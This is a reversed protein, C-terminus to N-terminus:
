NGYISREFENVLEEFVKMADEVPKPSTMDVGAIKLEDVPYMSGGTSLFKKYDEVAKEGEELISSSIAVAASFGTAYQYVYFATYFHPIRAWEYQIMDDHSMAPGFYKFNIEDYTKCLWDPTLTGGAEVYRHTELEYEAFMTQRFVTARFSELFRNILYLRMGKDTETNLLHRLLLNENVTSAVEAVFITYDGYVPPQAKKSYYSHMSHGMEHVLTQVYDLRGDYNLLIYPESDYCGSSYAGSRKGKNEYVDIWGNEVGRKVNEIYDDGLPKLAEYMLSVAEEYAYEKGPTEVIPVYVDYMKLEDLELLKKKLEIYRHLVPLNDNVTKILNDYVSEPIDNPYLMSERASSFGRIRSSIVNAKVNSDYLSAITNVHNKFATYMANFAAERVSRDKSEMMSSYNGHTLKVPNGDEDKIEGFDIDANELVAFTRGASRTVESLQAMLSEESASLVHKKMKLINELSFEYLALREDEKIFGRLKEPDESLFEPTMFSTAASVQSIVTLFRGYMEQYKGLSTDEDRRMHAYAGLKGATREIDDNITLAKYITDASETLRGEFSKMEAALESLKKLDEEWLSEDSYIAELNWKYKEPIDKRERLAARAM